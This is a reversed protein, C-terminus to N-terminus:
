SPPFLTLLDRLLGYESLAVCPEGGAKGEDVADGEDSSRVCTAQKHAEDDLRARSFESLTWGLPVTVSPTTSPSAHVVGQPVASYVYSAATTCSDSPTQGCVEDLTRTLRTLWSAPLIQNLQASGKTLLPLILEPRLAAPAKAIDAGPNNDIFVVVPVLYPVDTGDAKTLNYDTVFSAIEPSIDSLTGLGSNDIYGGDVLQLDSFSRDCDPMTTNSLRGAPSVFPFRASLTAVTAWDFDFICSGIYDQLDVTNALEAVDGNCKPVGSGATKAVPDQPVSDSEDTPREDPAVYLNLQSILVKCSSIADASNLVLYGTTDSPELDYPETLQRAGNRMVAQQLAVRDQWAWGTAGTGVQGYGGYSPVRIGTISGVFDGAFLGAVAAGLAQPGTIGATTLSASDVTRHPADQFMALGVSGGSAGTSLFNSSMACTGAAALESLVEVTWTAARIGGGEAATLVLPRVMVADDGTPAANVGCGLGGLAWADLADDLSVRPPSSASDPTQVAHFAPAGVLQGVTLPLVVLLAVLPTSRLRLLQFIQLPDRRGLWLTITAVITTWSSLLFLLTAVPGVVTSIQIPFLLFAIITSAAAVAIGFGWWHIAPTEATGVSNVWRLVGKTGNKLTFVLGHGDDDAELGEGGKAPAGDTGSSGDPAHFRFTLAKEQFLDPDLWAVFRGLLFPVLVGGLAGVVVAFGIIGAQGPPGPEAAGPIVALAAPGVFARMLGLFAAAVLAVVLLEGARRVAPAADKASYGRIPDPLKRNKGKTARRTYIAQIIRSSAPFVLLVILFGLLTGWDVKDSGATAAILIALVAIGLGTLVWAAIPAPGREASDYTFYHRARRRGFVHLSLACLTFALATFLASPWDFFAHPNEVSASNLVWGREVDAVQELPEFLRLLSFMGVFVVVIVGLRQAYLGKAASKVAEWAPKRVDNDLVAILLLSAVSLWKVIGVVAVVVAWGGPIVPGGLYSAAIFLATDEAVEAGLLIWVVLHAARVARFARLLLPVYATVFLLDITTHLSILPAPNITSDSWDEWAGINLVGGPGIVATLEHVRSSTPLIQGILYNVEGMAVLAAVAVLVLFTTSGISARIFRRVSSRGDAAPAEAPEKTTSSQSSDAVVARPSPM